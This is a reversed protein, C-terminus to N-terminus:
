RDSTPEHRLRLPPAGAVRANRRVRERYIEDELMRRHRDATEAEQALVAERTSVELEAADLRRGEELAPLLGLTVIQGCLLASLWLPAWHLLGGGLRDMRAGWASPGSARARKAASEARDPTRTRKAM